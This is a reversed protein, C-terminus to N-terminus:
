LRKFYLTVKLYLYIKIVEVTESSIIVSIADSGMVIGHYWQLIKQLVIEREVRMKWGEDERDTEGVWVLM